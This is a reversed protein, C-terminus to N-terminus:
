SLFLSIRPRERALEWVVVQRGKLGCYGAAPESSGGGVSLCGGQMWLAVVSFVVVSAGRGGPPSVVLSSCSGRLTFHLKWTFFDFFYVMVLVSSFM